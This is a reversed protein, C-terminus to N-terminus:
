QRNIVSRNGGTSKAKSVATLLSEVIEKISLSEGHYETIGCSAHITVDPMEDFHKSLLDERIENMYNLVEKDSMGRFIAAFQDGSFRSLTSQVGCYKVLAGACASLILDGNKHGYVDNITTFDDIDILAVSMITNNEVCNARAKSLIDYFATHNYFGTLPDVSLTETKLSDEQQSTSILGNKSTSFAVTATTIYQVICIICVVGISSVIHVNMDWTNDFLIAFPTVAVVLVFSVFSLFRTYRPNDFMSSVFIPIIFTAPLVIFFGHFISINAAYGYLCAFVAYDKTKETKAKKIILMAVALDLFNCFSPLLTCKLFYDSTSVIVGLKTLKMIFFMTIELALLVFAVVLLARMIRLRNESRMEIYKNQINM